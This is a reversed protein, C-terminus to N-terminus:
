SLGGDALLGAEQAARIWRVVQGTVCMQGAQRRRDLMSRLASAGLLPRDRGVLERRVPKMRERGRATNEPKKGM